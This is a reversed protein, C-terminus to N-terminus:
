QKITIIGLKILYNNNNKQRNKARKAPSFAQKGTIKM